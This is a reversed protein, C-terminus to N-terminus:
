QVTGSVKDARKRLRVGLGGGGNEAIFEVGATELAERLARAVLPSQEMDNEARRITALSVGSAEALRPGSWDLLARAARIQASEIKM